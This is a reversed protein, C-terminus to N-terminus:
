QCNRLRIAGCWRQPVWCNLSINFCLIDKSKMLAGLEKWKTVEGPNNINKQTIFFLSALFFAPHPARRLTTPPTTVSPQPMVATSHGAIVSPPPLFFSHCLPFFFFDPGRLIKVLSAEHANHLKKFQNRHQRIRSFSKLFTAGRFLCEFYVESFYPFPCPFLPFFFLKNLHFLLFCVPM